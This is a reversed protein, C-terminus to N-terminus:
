KKPELWPLVYLADNGAFARRLSQRVADSNQYIEVFRAIEPNDANNERAVFRIAFALEDVPSYILAQGAKEALGANVYQAPYGQALDLDDLSRVLQLGEIEVFRLKKPNSVIDDITSLYGKGEPLTILGARELLQLGRGQNVPDSALGVLGGEPVADFSTYRNSYLGLNPLVGLGVSKLPAGSNKIAAQLFPEHQFYNMDLDGAALAMNPTTWDSFEIVKIDMGAKRADQAAAEVSDALFGPTVGITLASAAASHLLAFSTLLGAVLRAKM